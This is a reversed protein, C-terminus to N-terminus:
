GLAQPLGLALGAGGVLLPLGKYADALARLDDDTTADAIAYTVGDEGLRGVRRRTQQQLVRVLNSDTMPTLPHQAMSSESLLTDGVFLHGKYVTRGNAPYAPTVVAFDAGLDDLLADAVPG